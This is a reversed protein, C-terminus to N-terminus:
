NKADKTLRSPRRSVLGRLQGQGQAAVLQANDSKGQGAAGRGEAKPLRELALHALVALRRDSGRLAEDAAARVEAITYNLPKRLIEAPTGDSMSSLAVIVGIIALAGGTVIILILLADSM